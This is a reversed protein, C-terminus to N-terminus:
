PSTGTDGAGASLGRAQRFLLTRGQDGSMALMLVGNNVAYPTFSHCLKLLPLLPHPISVYIYIPNSTNRAPSAFGAEEGLWALSMGRPTKM